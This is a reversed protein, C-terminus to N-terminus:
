RFKINSCASRPSPSWGVSCHVLPSFHAVSLTSTRFTDMVGGVLIELAARMPPGHATLASELTPLGVEPFSVVEFSPGMTSLRRSLPTLPDFSSTCVVHTNPCIYRGFPSTSPALPRRVCLTWGLHQCLMPRLASRSWGCLPWVVIIHHSPELCVWM